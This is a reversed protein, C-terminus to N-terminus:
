EEVELVKETAQYEAAKLGYHKTLFVMDQQM